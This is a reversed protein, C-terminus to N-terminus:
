AYKKEEMKFFDTGENINEDILILEDKNDVEIYLDHYTVYKGKSISMDRLFTGEIAFVRRNGEEDIKIHYGSDTKYKITNLNHNELVHNIVDILENFPLFIIGSYKIKAYRIFNSIKYGVIIDNKYLVDVEKFKDVRDEKEDSFLILLTNDIEHLNFLGYERNDM